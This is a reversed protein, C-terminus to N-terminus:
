ASLLLKVIGPPIDDEERVEEPCGPFKPPSDTTEYESLRSPVRAEVYAEQVSDLGRMHLYKNGTKGDGSIKVIEIIHYM